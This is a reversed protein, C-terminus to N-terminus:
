SESLQRDAVAVALVLPFPHCVRMEPVCFKKIVGLATQRTTRPGIPRPLVGDWEIM